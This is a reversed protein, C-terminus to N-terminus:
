ALKAASKFMTEAESKTLISRHTAVIKGSPSIIFTVPAGSLGYNDVFTSQSDILVPYTLGYKAVFNKVGSPTDFIDIGVFTVKRKYQKYVSQLDPAEKNCPACWSGFANLIVPHGDALLSKLSVTQGTGLEKLSFSPATKQATSSSATLGSENATVTERVPVSCGGVLLATLVSSAILMSKM